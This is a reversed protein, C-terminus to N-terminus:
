CRLKGTFRFMVRDFFQMLKYGIQAWKPLYSLLCLRNATQAILVWDRPNHELIKRIPEVTWSTDSISDYIAVPARYYSAMILASDLSRNKKGTRLAREMPDLIPLSLNEIRPIRDPLM